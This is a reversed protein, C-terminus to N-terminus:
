YHSDQEFGDSLPNVPHIVAVNTSSLMLLLMTHTLSRNNPAVFLAVLSVFAPYVCHTNGTKYCCHLSLGYLGCESLRVVPFVCSGDHVPSSVSAETFRLHGRLCTWSM